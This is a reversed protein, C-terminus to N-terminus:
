ITKQYVIGDENGYYKKRKSLQLYGNKEYFHRAPNSERVELFIKTIGQTKLVKHVYELLSGGLGRNQYNSRIVIQLIDAEEVGLLFSVFGVVFNDEEVVMYRKREDHLDHEIEKLTWWETQFANRQLEYITLADSDNALRIM